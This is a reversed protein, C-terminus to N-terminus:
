SLLRKLEPNLNDLQDPYAKYYDTQTRQLLDKRNRVKMADRNHKANLPNAKTMESEEGYIINGNRIVAKKSKM